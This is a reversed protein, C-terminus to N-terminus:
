KQCHKRHCDSIFLQNYFLYGDFHSQSSLSTAKSLPLVITRRRFSRQVKTKYASDRAPSNETSDRCSMTSSTVLSAEGKDRKDERTVVVGCIMLVMM